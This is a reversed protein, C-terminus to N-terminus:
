LVQSVVKSSEAKVNVMAITEFSRLHSLDCVKGVRWNERPITASLSLKLVNICPQWLDKLDGRATFASFDECQKAMIAIIEM